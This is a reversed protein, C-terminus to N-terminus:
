RGKKIASTALFDAKENGDFGDHGKVKILKLDGFKSILKKISNILEKNKRAKWGLTLVGHAYSSDTFVRVPYDYHKLELLATKIAELEAINNTAEGINRSIEKEHDKFRLLIGIGSPGPNGSSAGDTYIFITNDSVTKADLGALSKKGPRNKKHEKKEPKEPQLSDVPMVGNEHVWYEYDQDLQYKILVKGSKLIPKGNQGTALWVKNGKFIMRKWDTQEKGM